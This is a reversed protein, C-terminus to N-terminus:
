TVASTLRKAFVISAARNGTIGQIRSAQPEIVQGDPTGLVFGNSALWAVAARGGGAVEPAVDAPLALSSFPVPARSTKRTLELERPTAGALFIVHDVQGLWIGGDVPQLFTIRQPLQIWGERPDHLHYAMADSFALINGRATLLRGRWYGIHQGTPTPAKFRGLPAAGPKPLLAFSVQPTGIVFDGAAALEGGNQRTLFVRVHTVSDDLCMPLAVELSSAGSLQVQTVASTPSEMGSRLWAVAVGYRGPELAGSASDVFPAAPQDLTLRLARTGDYRFLGAPTAAVVLNNLVLHAAAGGCNALVHTSWDSPDVKVWDQGQVAFVDGHLPSQWLDSLVLNSLKRRGPRMSARGNGSIDFNLAERLFIRPEQGGIQLADDRPSVNDYGALPMLSFPKAQM